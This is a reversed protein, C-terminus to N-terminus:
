ANQEPALLLEKAQEYDKPPVQVRVYGYTNLNWSITQMVFEDPLFTSIGAADLRSVIMDAEPLTRCKVLTVWDKEMEEASLTGFHFEPGHHSETEAKEGKFEDTGCEVCNMADDSNERGCYACVKM